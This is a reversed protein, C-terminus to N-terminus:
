AHASEPGRVALDIRARDGQYRQAPASPRPLRWGPEHHVLAAALRDALVSVAPGPHPLRAPQHSGRPGRERYSPNVRGAVDASGAPPRSRPTSEDDDAAMPWGAQPASM